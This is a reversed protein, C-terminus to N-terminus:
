STANDFGVSAKFKALANEEAPSLPWVNLPVVSMDITGLLTQVLELYAEPCESRSM